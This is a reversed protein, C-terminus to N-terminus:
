SGSLPLVGCAVLPKTRSGVRRRRGTREAIFGFCSRVRTSRFRAVKFGDPPRTTFRYACISRCERMRRPGSQQGNLGPNFALALGIAVLGVGMRRM